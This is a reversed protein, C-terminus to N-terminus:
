VGERAGSAFTAGRAVGAGDVDLNARSAAGILPSGAAPRYDGNGAGSGMASRDDTFKPWANGQGTAASPNAVAGIGRGHQEFNGSGLRRGQVNGECNCGDQFWLGETLWPRYGYNPAGSNSAATTDDYFDDHKTPLWDFYNNALRCDVHIDTSVLDPPDNYLLNTREGIFSNGEILAHTARELANEGFAMMPEPSAGVREIVNNVIMPRVLQAYGGSTITPFVIGRATVGLGVNGVCVWDAQSDADAGASWAQLTTGYTCNVIALANIGRPTSCSRVLAFRQATGLNAWNVATGAGIASGTAYCYGTTNSTLFATSASQGSRATVQVNDTWLYASNVANSGGVAMTLNAFRLHTARTNLTATGCELTCNARPNADDPDGVIMPWCEAATLGTTPAVTGLSTTGAPIVIIANDAMRTIAAAGNAAAASRNALYIAQLAVAANAPKSAAAVAKAAALTAQVMAASATTTGSVPDCAVYAPAYRTDAPDYAMVLPANATNVFSGAIGSQGSGSTRAPGVWQFLTWHITIPGANLGAPDITVGWCRVGDAGTSLADAWFTKTTVGDTVDFRVAALGSRGEPNISGAMLEVRFPGTVRQKPPTLWRAGVVPAAALLSNNTVAITAQASAGTRWGAALSLTCGDGQYVHRSLRLKVTRTGNGNDTEDLVDAHPAITSTPVIPTRRLPKLAIMPRARAANAAAQEGARDFGATTTALAVKDMPTTNTASAQGYSTWSGADATNMVLTLINGSSDISASQVLGSPAVPALVRRAAGAGFGFRAM